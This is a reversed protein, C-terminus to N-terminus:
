LEKREQEGARENKRMRWIMEGPHVESVRSIFSGDSVITRIQGGASAKAVHSVVSRDTVDVTISYGRALVHEPSLAELRCKLSHVKQSGMQLRHRMHLIMKGLLDDMQQQYQKILNGPERFVYSQRALDFRRRYEGLGMSAYHCLRDRLSRIREAMEEKQGVVIEAAASPTPARVDAVFDTITWDIEHGVASIIPIESAFIARAVIEENFPWLDELSGGGRGLIIVDVNKLRNLDTLASVIEPAAEAGQVRVPYLLIHLNSFRRDLVHLIDRIAAGTPSTVVGIRQPLLPIPKKHEPSFLGEEFLKKKLNEFAIQLAGVGREEVRSVIIQYEGRKEYVGINGFALVKMGDKMQIPLRILQSRFIVAAIQCFADKLTFYAHGTPSVRFNSVEGEVWLAPYKAELLMKIDRTLESVSYIRPEPDRSRIPQATM